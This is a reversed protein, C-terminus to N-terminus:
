NAWSTMTAVAIGLSGLNPPPEGVRATTQENTFLGLKRVMIECIFKRCKEDKGRVNEHIVVPRGNLGKPVNVPMTHKLNWKWTPRAIRAWISYSKLPPSIQVLTQVRCSMCVHAAAHPDIMSLLMHILVSGTRNFKM